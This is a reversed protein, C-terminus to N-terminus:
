ICGTGRPCGSSLCPQGGCYCGSGYRCGSTGCARTNCSFCGSGTPCHTFCAFSGCAVQACTIPCVAADVAGPGLGEAFDISATRSFDPVEDVSADPTVESAADLGALDASNLEPGCGVLLIFAVLPRYAM